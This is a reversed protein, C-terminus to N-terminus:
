DQQKSLVIGVVLLVNAIMSIGTILWAATTFDWFPIDHWWWEFLIPSFTAGFPIMSSFSIFLSLALFAIIGKFLTLEYNGTFYISYTLFGLIALASLSKLMVGTENLTEAVNIM